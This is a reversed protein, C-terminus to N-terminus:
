QIGRKGQPPEHPTSFDLIRVRERTETMLSDYIRELAKESKRTIRIRGDQEPSRDIIEVFLRMGLNPLGLSEARGTASYARIYAQLQAQETETM